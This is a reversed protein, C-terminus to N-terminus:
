VGASLLKAVFTFTADYSENYAPKDFIVKWGFSEYLDEIDLWHKNFIENTTYGYKKVLHDVIDNLKFCSQNHLFNQAIFNNFTTIVTDPIPKAKVVESPRIPNMM